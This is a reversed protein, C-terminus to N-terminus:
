EREPIVFLSLQGSEHSSRPVEELSPEHENEFIPYTYPLIMTTFTGYPRNQQIANRMQETQMRGSRWQLYTQTHEKSGYVRDGARLLAMDHVNLTREPNEYDARLRLYTLFHDVGYPLSLYPESEPRVPFQKEFIKRVAAFNRKGTAVYILEFEMLSSFLSTYTDLYRQFRKTTLLGEDFFTFRLNPLNSSASGILIPFPDSFSRQGDMRPQPLSEPNIGLTDTFYEVKAQEDNLFIESLHDLVFDLAMLRIKIQADGKLRWNQFSDLGLREYIARTTLHYIQRAEGCDISRLHGNDRAKRILQHAIAGRQRQSFHCFQRRLFYGSHVAVIYLFAAERETYGLSQLASVSDSDAM